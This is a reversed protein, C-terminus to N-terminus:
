KEDVQEILPKKKEEKTTDGDASAALEGLSKDVFLEMNVSLDEDVNKGSSNTTDTIPQPAPISELKESDENQLRSNAEELKPLFDQLKAILSSPEVSAGSVKARAPNLLEDLPNPM